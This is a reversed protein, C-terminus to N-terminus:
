ADGVPKSNLEHYVAIRHDVWTRFTSKPLVQSAIPDLPVPWECREYWGSARILEFARIEALRGRRSVAQFRPDSQLMRSIEIGQVTDPGLRRTSLIDILEAIVDDDLDTGSELLVLLREDRNDVVGGM